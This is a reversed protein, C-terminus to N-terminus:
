EIEPLQDTAGSTGSASAQNDIGKYQLCFLFQEHNAKSDVHSPGDDKQSSLDENQYHDGPLMQQDHQNEPLEVQKQPLTQDQVSGPHQQSQQYQQLQQLYLLYQQQQLQQYQYSQQQQQQSPVVQGPNQQHTPMHQEQDPNQQHPPVQHPQPLQSVLQQQQQQQQQQYYYQWMQNPDVQSQQHTPVHQEQGSNQVQQQLQQTPAMQQSQPLQSASQQQLLLQQQQYYYQWMQNYLQTNQVDGYQENNNPLPYQNVQAQTYVSPQLPLLDQPASGVVQNQVNHSQGKNGFVGIHQNLTRGDRPGRSNDPYRPYRRNPQRRDRHWREDSNWRSNHRRPSLSRQRHHQSDSYGHSSRRRPSLSRDRRDGSNEPSGYESRGRNSSNLQFRSGERDLTRTPSSVPSFDKHQRRTPCSSDNCTEAADNDLPKVPIPMPIGEPSAEVPLTKCENVFPSEDDQPNSSRGDKSIPKEHQAILEQQKKIGNSGCNDVSQAPKENDHEIAQDEIHSKSPSLEVEVQLCDLGEDGPEFQAQDNMTQENKDANEVSSKQFVLDFFDPRGEAVMKLVAGADASNKLSSQERVLHPFLKLHRIWAKRIDHISGCSDIFELYLTSIQERDKMSLDGSADPGFTLARAILSDLLNVQKAGDHMSSFHLLEKLLLKSCPVRQIGDLLVERAGEVSNRVMCQFRAYHLYLMPLTGPSKVAALDLSAKYIDSAKAYNGMRKELNAKRRVMDVFHSGIEQDCQLVAEHAGEIDGNNEKFWANFLHIGPSNKLFINTARDMADSAIEKGGNAEVFYVYRMWFEPYHACSVLCREYLKVAWDFDGEMEVLDLYQHWNELQSDDLPKVHFYPRHINQEFKRLKADLDCAKRYYREGILKYKQLAEIRTSPDLLNSTVHSIEANGSMMTEDDSECQSQLGTHSGEQLGTEEEWISVLKKFSVSMFFRLIFLTHMLRSLKLYTCPEGKM